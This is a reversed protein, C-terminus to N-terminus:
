WSFPLRHGDHGVPSVERRAYVFVGFQEVGFTVTGGGLHLDRFRFGHTPATQNSLFAERPGHGFQPVPDSTTEGCM